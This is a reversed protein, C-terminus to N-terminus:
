GKIKQKKISEKKLIPAKAKPLLSNGFEIAKGWWLM